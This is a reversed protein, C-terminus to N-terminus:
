EIKVVPVRLINDVELVMKRPLYHAVLLATELLLYHVDLVLGLLVGAQYEIYWRLVVAPAPHIDGVELATRKLL